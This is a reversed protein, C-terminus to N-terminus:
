PASRIFELQKLNFGGHTAKIRLRDQKGRLRIGNIDISKWQKMGGTAPLYINQAIMKGNLIISITGEKDIAGFHLRLTYTSPVIAHITYQLWEGDEIDSVFYQEYHSSDKRIDVGDNRYTRGKNGQGPVGSGHYNATDHDYYASGNSGLDYDVAQIITKSKLNNNGYPIAKDSYVQRFMADIVDPHFRCNELKSYVAAEIMGSYVDSEKPQSEKGNFFNVVHMFNHNAFIELPNGLGMKKFPWWSWGINNKEFLRIAETFWVNSNEGTEGLWVPVNYKKRADLMNKIEKETNFNWYKHFSLVINRDWPPLMGNYNNGWGNGEIVIIHNKDVQRITATIEKLLKLLPENKKEKLGNKDNVPDEFGFNPENLIDYAGIWEENAYREALKKWLAITKHKNDESSWLSPLSTDRDSINVDNGQGGPAAHLDLILYMKNAKCWSLLSDTMQFGKELWTNQGKVPEKEIPLTFLNFHMPLRVSNFGWSKMSDIDIKRTNNTLWTDYFEKTQEPSSIQELRQKIRHQQGEKNIRLMYGEQIMWGGLGAGRLLINEGKANTIQNGDAKLFGQSHARCALMVLFALSFIKQIARM